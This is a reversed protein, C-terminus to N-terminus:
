ILIYSQWLKEELFYADKLKTIVTVTRLSKPAWSSFNEVAEMKEGQIQWSTIPCTVMIKTKQNSPKLDAKWDGKEGEDLPEKTWRQKRSDPHNM